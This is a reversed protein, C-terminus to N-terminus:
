AGNNAIKASDTIQMPVFDARAPLGGVALTTKSPWTIRTSIASVGSNYARPKPPRLDSAGSSPMITGYLSGPPWEKQIRPMNMEM